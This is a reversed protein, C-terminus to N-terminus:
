DMILDLGLLQRILYILYDSLNETGHQTKVYDATTIVINSLYLFDDTSYNSGVHHLFNLNFM